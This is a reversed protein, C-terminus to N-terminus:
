LYTPRISMFGPTTGFRLSDHFGRRKGARTKQPLFGRGRKLRARGALDSRRAPKGRARSSLHTVSQVDWLCTFFSPVGYHTQRLVAHEKSWPKGDHDRENILHARCSVFTRGKTLFPNRFGPFNKIRRFNALLAARNVRGHVILLQSQM